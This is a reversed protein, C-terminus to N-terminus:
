KTKDSKTSTEVTDNQLVPAVLDNQFVPPNASPGTPVQAPRSETMFKLLHRGESILVVRILEVGRALTLLSMVAM